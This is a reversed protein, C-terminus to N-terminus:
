KPNEICQPLLAAPAPPLLAATINKGSQDLVDRNSICCGFVCLSNSLQFSKSNPNSHPGQNVPWLALKKQNAKRERERENEVRYFLSPTQGAIKNYMMAMYGQM